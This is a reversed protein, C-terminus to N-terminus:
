PQKPRRGHTARCVLRVDPRAHLRNGGFLITYHSFPSSPVNTQGGVNARCTPDSGGRTQICVIYTWFRTCYSVRRNVLHVRRNTGATVDLFQQLSRAPELSPARQLTWFQHVSHRGFHQLSTAPELSAGATIQMSTIRRGLQVICLQVINAKRRRSCM